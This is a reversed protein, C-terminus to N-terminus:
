PLAVAAAGPRGFCIHTHSEQRHGCHATNYINATLFNSQLTDSPPQPHLSFAIYKVVPVSLQLKNFLGVAGFFPVCWVAATSLFVAFLVGGRFTGVFLVGHFTSPSPACCQRTSEELSFFPVGQFSGRIHM